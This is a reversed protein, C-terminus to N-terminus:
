REYIRLVHDRLINTQTALDPHIRAHCTPKRERRGVFGWDGLGASKVPAYVFANYLFNTFTPAACVYPWMFNDYHAAYNM